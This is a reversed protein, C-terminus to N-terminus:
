TALAYYSRSWTDAFLYEDVLVRKQGYTLQSHPAQKLWEAAAGDSIRRPLSFNNPIGEASRMGSEYFIRNVNAYTYAFLGPNADYTRAAVILTHRYAYQVNLFQTDDHVLDVALDGAYTSGGSITSITALFDTYATSSSDGARKYNDVETAIRSIIEASLNARIIPNILKSQMLNTGSVEHIITVQDSAQAAELRYWTGSKQRIDISDFNESLAGTQNYLEIFSGEMWIQSAAGSGRRWQWETIPPDLSFPIVYDGKRYSM